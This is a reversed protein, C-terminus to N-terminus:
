SEGGEFVARGPSGRRALSVGPSAPSLTRSFSKWQRLCHNLCGVPATAIAVRAWRSPSGHWYLPAPETRRNM